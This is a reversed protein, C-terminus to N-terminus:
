GGKRFDSLPRQYLAALKVYLEDPANGWSERELQSIRAQYSGIQHGVRNQTLGLAERRERLKTGDIHQCYPRPVSATVFRLIIRAVNDPHQEDQVVIEVDGQLGTPTTVDIQGDDPRCVPPSPPPQGGITIIIAGPLNTGTILVPTQEHSIVERPEISTLTIPPPPVQPPANLLTDFRQQILQLFVRLEGGAERCMVGIEDEKFPFCPRDPPPACGPLKDWVADRLRTLVVERASIPDLPRLSQAGHGEIMRDVLWNNAGATLDQWYTLQICFLLCFRPTRMFPSLGLALLDAIQRGPETYGGAQAFARYTDEIQDFALCFTEDVLRNLTFLGNRVKEMGQCPHDLHVPAMVEPPLAEGQFWRDAFWRQRTDGCALLCAAVFTDRDPYIGDAAGKRADEAFEAFAEDLLTRRIFAKQLAAVQDSAGLSGIRLKYRLLMRKFWTGARLAEKIKGAPGTKVIRDYAAVLRRRVAQEFTIQQRRSRRWLAEVTSRMLHQEFSAGGPSGPLYPPIYVFVADKRQDITHRTWALLHTKGYGPPATITLCRIARAQGCEALTTQVLKKLDAHLSDADVVTDWPSQVVQHHFPRPGLFSIRQLLDLPPMDQPPSTVAEPM